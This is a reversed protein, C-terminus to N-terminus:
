TIKQNIFDSYSPSKELAIYSGIQENIAAKVTNIKSLEEESLLKSISNFADINPKKTIADVMNKIHNFQILPEDRSNDLCTFLGPNLIQVKIYWKLPGGTKLM